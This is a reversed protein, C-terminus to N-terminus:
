LWDPNLTHRQDDLAPGSGSEKDPCEGLAPKTVRREGVAGIQELRHVHGLRLLAFDPESEIEGTLEADM